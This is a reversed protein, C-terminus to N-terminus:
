PEFRERWEGTQVGATGDGKLIKGYAKWEWKDAYWRKVIRKEVVMKKGTHTYGNVEVTQGIKLPHREEVWKRLEEGKEKELRLIEGEIRGIEQIYKKM